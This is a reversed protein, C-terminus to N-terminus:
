TRQLSIDDFWAIGGNADPCRFFIYTNGSSPAAFAQSFAVFATGTETTFAAFIDGWVDNWCRVRGGHTGDGRAWGSLTYSVGATLYSLKATKVSTDRGPGATLKVAALGSRYEGGATARAIAGDGAQYSWFAVPDTPPSYLREFGGDWLLEPKYARSIDEDSRVLSALTMPVTALKILSCALGGNYLGAYYMYTTGDVEVLTVDAVQGVATGAGEDYDTRPYVLGPPDRVWTHLDTSRYRAIDTPLTGTTAVHTWCWYMGGIKTVWPGSVSGPLNSIVPNGAHKTWSVGDPSTALGIKYPTSGPSNAEYLIYWTGDEIWVHTNAIGSEDWEGGTGGLVSTAATAWTIGDASTLKSYGGPILIAYMVYTAGDMLVTCRTADVKIPNSGHKTWTIGDNSEAYWIDRDPSGTGGSYWIKFVSGTLIQPDADYLVNPESLVNEEASATVNLVVGQPAWIYQCAGRPYLLLLERITRNM